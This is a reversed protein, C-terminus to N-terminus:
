LNFFSLITIINVMEKNIVWSKDNGNIIQYNNDHLMRNMPLTDTIITYIISAITQHSFVQKHYDTFQEQAVPFNCHPM